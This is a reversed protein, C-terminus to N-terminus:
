NKSVLVPMYKKLEEDEFPYLEFNEEQLLQEIDQRSLIKNLVPVCHCPTTVYRWAKRATLIAVSLLLLIINIMASRPEHHFVIMGKIAIIPFLLWIFAALGRKLPFFRIWEMRHLQKQSLVTADGIESNQSLLGITITRSIAPPINAFAFLGSVFVTMCWFLESGPYCLVNMWLALFLFCALMGYRKQQTKLRYIGYSCLVLLTGCLWGYLFWHPPISFLGWPTLILSEHQLIKINGSIGAYDFFAMCVASITALTALPFLLGQKKQEGQQEKM